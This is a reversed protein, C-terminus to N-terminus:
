LLGGQSLSTWSNTWLPIGSPHSGRYTASGDLGTGQPGVCGATPGGSAPRPDIRAPKLSAALKNNVDGQPNFTIDSNVLSFTAPNYQNLSNTFGAVAGGLQQSLLNGNELAKSEAATLVTFVPPNPLGASFTQSWTGTVNDQTTCVIRTFGNNMNDAATFSPAGSALGQFGTDTVNVIVSNFLDGAGGNRWEWGINASNVDIPTFDNGSEILSGIATVNYFTFSSLPWPTKDESADSIRERTNLNDNLAANDPRYDEGDLEALKDGSASGYADGDNEDFFPQFTTLFQNVGTYGLDADFSDDGVFFAALHDGNVTGGFWEFGDDFNAYVEIFSIRTGAGVAGMTLGNLENSTGIEDGAHRISIYSLSGSNDNPLNGGYTADAAPFGPVTLGEVIGKGYGVGYIDALNTPAEGLVVLGGWLGTNDNGNADLPALPATTCSDDYFTPTADPVLAPLQAPDFGPYSDEFGNADLDDPVNDGDNDVAATTMTIPATPSGNAVIRGAQTVVLVGPTGAVQNPVVASSRPQGRVVTGAAITLTANNKVFVPGDLLVHGSWAANANVDGSVTLTPAGIPCAAVQAFAAPALGVVILGILAKGTKRM